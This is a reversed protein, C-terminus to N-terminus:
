DFIPSGAPSRTLIHTAAKLYFCNKKPESCSSLKSLLARLVDNAEESTQFHTHEEGYAQHLISDIAEWNDEIHEDDSILAETIYQCIIKSHQRICKYYAKAGLPSEPPLIVLKKLDPKIVKSEILVYQFFARCSETSDMDERNM